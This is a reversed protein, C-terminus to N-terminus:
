DRGARLFELPDLAVANKRVEFHCYVGTANGSRGALAIPEGRGVEDGMSVLLESNHGYLSTLGGGHDLIISNGYDRMNSGAYVVVGPWAAVVQQGAQARIDLGRHTDIGRRGFGSVIEGGAVPWAWAGGSAHAPVILREGVSLRDPDTLDNARVFDAVSVGYHRSLSWLMEGPQVTHMRVAAAETRAEEAAPGAVPGPPPPSTAPPTRASGCGITVLAVLLVCGPRLVKM